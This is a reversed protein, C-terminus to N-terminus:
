AGPTLRAANPKQAPAGPTDSAGAAQRRQEKEKRGKLIMGAAEGAPGGRAQIRELTEDPQKGLQAAIAVIMARSGEMERDALARRHAKAGLWVSMVGAALALPRAALGIPEPVWGKAGACALAVFLLGMALALRASMRLSQASESMSTSKAM